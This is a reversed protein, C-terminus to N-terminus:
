GIDEGGPNKLEMDILDFVQNNDLKEAYRIKDSGQEIQCASRYGCYRCPSAINGGVPNVQIDGSKIERGMLSVTKSIHRSLKGFQEATLLNGGKLVGKAVTVPLFQKEDGREMAEILDPDFLLAGARKLNKDRQKQIEGDSCDRDMLLFVDRAPAYLVGAAEIRSAGYYDVASDCLAFLYLLMQMGMGYWIDSLKFEKLGTKYDMVRLYLTDGRLWGDVRDVAGTLSIDTGSDSFDVPPLQGDSRFKLEFDLPDFESKSMEQVMDGVIQYTETRLRSFLYKFRETRDRFDLLKERVYIDLYKDTIPRWQEQTATKFGGSDKIERIVNELIFHMFDGAAPADFEAKQTIKANLGYQMFYSFHCKGYSELKSASLMLKEGFLKAATEPSLAPQMDKSRDRIRELCHRDEGDLAEFACSTLEGAGSRGATLALDILPRRAWTRFTGSRGATEPDIGYMECLRAAITSKRKEKGDSGVSPWIIVLGESAMTFTNYILGMERQLRDNATNVLPLDMEILKERESDSLIGTSNAIVPLSEDTAGLVILCKIHRNRMRDMEGMNVRDLSMPITGVSYQSLTLRILDSFERQSMVIDGEALVCQEMARVIIPWLQRYEGSLQRDGNEEFQEAKNELRDSLGIEELFEYLALVQGRLDEAKKGSEGLKLLPGSVSSRLINIEELLEDTKDGTVGYGEPSFSWPQNKYWMSGKISWMYIYNELKDCQGPSLGTLGTKIYKLVAEYRWGGTVIELASTLLMMAPKQMIDSKKSMYAPVGYRAFIREATTEYSSFGRAAVAIDSYRYGHERILERVKAAAIECEDSVTDANIVEIRKNEGEYRGLGSAFLNEELFKLEQPRKEDPESQTDVQVSIGMSEAMRKLSVATRRSSEFIESEDTLGQCTLAVTLSSTIPLMARIVLMEQATFDTFGDIYVDAGKILSSDPLAEALRTLRDRPDMRATVANYASLIVVLDSVKRGLAGTLMEAKDELEEPRIACSKMEDVTEILGELYEPRGAVHPFVKLHHACMKVASDMALIRGAGDLVQDALGGTESFVRESLRTFSLIEAYLSARDGCVKCIEREAAHSYQEPVIMISRTDSILNEKIEKLIRSTKGRGARGLILRLM